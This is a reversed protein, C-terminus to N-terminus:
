EQLSLADMVIIQAPSVNEQNLHPTHRIILMKMIHSVLPVLIPMQVLEADQFFIKANKAHPEMKITNM